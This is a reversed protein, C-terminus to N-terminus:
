GSWEKSLGTTDLMANFLNTLTCNEKTKAVRNPQPSNPPMRRHIISYEVCFLHFVNSFYEGSHDSQVIQDKKLNIKLKQKYSKFYDLADDKTKLLYVYCYRTSDDIFTMSYIKGGKPIVGNMECLDLHILELPALNREEGAKHPKHPQKAQVYAQCKSGKALTFKLILSISALRTM